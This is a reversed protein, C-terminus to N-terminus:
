AKGYKRWLKLKLEQTAYACRSYKQAEEFHYKRMQKDNLTKALELYTLFLGHNFEWEDDFAKYLEGLEVYKKGFLKLM